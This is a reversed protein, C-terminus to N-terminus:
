WMRVIVRGTSLVFCAPGPRIFRMGKGRYFPWYTNGAAVSERVRGREREGQCHCQTQSRLLRPAPPNPPSWASVDSHLQVLSLSTPSSSSFHPSPPLGCTETNGAAKRLPETKEGEEQNKALGKQDWSVQFIVFVCVYVCVCARVGQDM